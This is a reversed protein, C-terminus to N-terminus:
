MRPAWLGVYARWIGLATAVTLLVLLAATAFRGGPGARDRAALYLQLVGLPLLYQAYNLILLAPGTFTETDIGAGGTLYFWLMLGIRFFWVGNVALYLRLAWRRHSGIRRTVASRFAIAAFFVILVANIAVGAKSFADIVNAAPNRALNLYFGSAAGVLAAPMYIRGNWRHFTPWRARIQPVLQLPGGGIVIVALLLHAAVALNGATDGAVFGGPM